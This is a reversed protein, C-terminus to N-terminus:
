LRPFFGAPWPRSVPPVFVGPVVLAAAAAAVPLTEGSARGSTPLQWEGPYLGERREVSRERGGCRGAMGSWSSLPLAGEGIPYANPLRADTTDASVHGMLFASKLSSTGPGFVCPAPGEFMFCCRHKMRASGWAPLLLLVLQSVEKSLTRQPFATEM